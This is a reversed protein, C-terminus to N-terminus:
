DESSLRSHHASTPQTCAPLLFSLREPPLRERRTQSRRKRPTRQVERGPCSAHYIRDKAVAGSQLEFGYLETTMATSVPWVDERRADSLPCRQLIHEKIQDEQGCPCNPCPALKLKRHVHSNLRNHGTRRVLQKQTLLHINDRQLSPMTLARVIM